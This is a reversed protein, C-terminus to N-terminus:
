ERAREIAEKLVRGAREREAPDNYNRTLGSPHPIAVIMASSEEWEIWEYFKPQEGDYFVKRLRAGLLVIVRGRWEDLRAWAAQYAEDMPFASGKGNAGPWYELLNKCDFQATLADYTRDLGALDCLMVGVKSSLPPMPPDGMIAPRGPAEGLILPKM